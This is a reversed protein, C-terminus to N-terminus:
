IYLPIVQNAFESIGGDKSNPKNRRMPLISPHWSINETSANKMSIGNMPTDKILDQLVNLPAITPNGASGLRVPLKKPNPNTGLPAHGGRQYKRYTSLPANQWLVYCSGKIMHPCSGCVESQPAEPNNKGEKFAIHPEKNKLLFWTQIMDGTKVNRSNDSTLGIISDTEYFITM